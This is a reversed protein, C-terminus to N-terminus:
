FFLLLNTLNNKMTRKGSGLSMAIIKRPTETTSTKPVIILENISNDEDVANDNKEDV